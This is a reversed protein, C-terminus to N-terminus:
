SAAQSTNLIAIVGVSAISHRGQWATCLLVGAGLGGEPVRWRLGFAHWGAALRQRSHYLVPNMGVPRHDPSGGYSNKCIGLWLETLWWHKRVTVAVQM